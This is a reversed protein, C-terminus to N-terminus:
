LVRNLRHEEGFQTQKTLSDIMGDSSDKTPNNFCELWNLPPNISQNNLLIQTM